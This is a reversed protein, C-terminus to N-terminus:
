YIRENNAVAIRKERKEKEGSFRLTPDERLCGMLFWTSAAMGPTPALSSSDEM